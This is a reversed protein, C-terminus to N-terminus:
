VVVEKSDVPLSVGPPLDLDPGDDPLGGESKDDNEDNNDEDDKRVEQIVKYILWINLLIFPIYFPHDVIFEFATLAFM